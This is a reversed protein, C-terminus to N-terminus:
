MKEPASIGLLKLGNSIVIQVCRVLVLRSQTLDPHDMDLVRFKNYFTHFHSSLEYLYNPIRYPEREEAANLIVGPYGAMKKIIQAEEDVTLLNLDVQNIPLQDINRNKMERFISCCRAHAYQVYFSPNDNARTVALKIDFDLHSNNTRNLFFYRAVDVAFQEGVTEALEDILQNLTYLHGKRKSMEVRSGDQHVLNVQQVVLGEFRDASYGLANILHDLHVIHGQHDPGLIDILLDFGRDFKDRHYAADPVFYTFEGDSKIVVCDKDDGFKTMQFWIAGEAKYLLKKKTFIEIIQEPKKTDRIVQESTWVDFEVGFRKLTSKQGDLLRQIGIDKFKDIRAAEDLQLYQDGESEVILRAIDILYEGHYGDEPIKLEEGGLLQRYRVDISAGLREVQKGADNVYFERIADYNAVNLLNVLVDGVAAARGSVINLPGTPNASVFEVLIRKRAGDQSRGYGEGQHIIHELTKYLCDESVFLNIFGPGAIEVQRILPDNALHNVIIGAIQRPPMKATKSLSMAIPTAIDGHEPNKTPSFVIDPIIDLSIEAHNIAQQIAARLVESVRLRVQDIL